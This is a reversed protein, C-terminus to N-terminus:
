RSRAHQTPVTAFGTCYDLLTLIQESCFRFLVPVICHKVKNAPCAVTHRDLFQIILGGEGGANSETKLDACDMFTEAKSSTKCTYVYKIQLNPPLPPPPYLHIYVTTATLIPHNKPLALHQLMTLPELSFPEHFFSRTVTVFLVFNLSLQAPAVISMSTIWRWFTAAMLM